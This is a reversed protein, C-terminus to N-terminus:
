NLVLSALLVPLHVLSMRWLARASADTPRGLFRAALALHALGLSLAVVVYPWGVTSVVAPVLSAALLGAAGLL